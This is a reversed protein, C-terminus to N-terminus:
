ESNVKVKELYESPLMGFEKKFCKAFYKPTNFGVAMSLEGVAIQPNGRAIECAKKLRISNIFGTVNQGTLARLKNYLTSSSVCMDSALQERSYDADDLHQSVCDIAKTIFVEDPSSYHQQEVQFDTQSSFKRRVRERNRIINDIRLQLDSLRFPKTIYADAGSEYGLNQDEDTTKATLMVVPLQGYDPSDKIARTLEVGDMVPMMVDTIVVDLDRKYIVNLAQQGNRSTFVNYQQAFLKSMLELLEANDEVILMSYDKRDGEVMLEEGELMLEGGEVMQVDVAKNDATFDIEEKKYAERSIPLTVTFTTGTGETSRCDIVGHHLMVLDHTLSLGIGTGLTNMKRYDGDLFRTYLHKMKDRPIGIGEDSVTLVAVTPSAAPCGLSVTIRGGECNYKVANSLLNYLIKDVKDKDFWADVGDEPCTVSLEANKAGVMPRINECEQRVFAALDGRAVLLRLQGAQSKRVELIQRLLRTLRQINNQMLAYQGAFQPAKGRLEDISASIITLPTLLEHTINTFVVAMALRNKTKLYNKYWRIVGYAAILLLVIYILYAWWSLYWPPLVRLKIAYPMESLHGYSDTARLHLYYTGAPLNQYTAMRNDADAHQWTRDYGELWYAYKNQQQNQYTLLSFVVSLKRVDSPITIQRTFFPQRSSIESRMDPLLWNYPRDDILLESVILRAPASLKWQSARSPDFALFGGANGYFLESGFGYSGNASFHTAQLGDEVGYYTATHKDGETRLRVLGRDTSLWLWGQRDGNISYISSLNLHFLHNVPRFADEDADYLFLTGSGSVAWLRHGDDEHCALADDIPYNGHEPAYQRFVLSAPRGADGSVCIIGANETAIWVRRRSDEMLANVHCHSFDADGESMTLMRGKGDGFAVGVGDSQGIWLSGDRRPLFDNVSGYSIYPRSNGQLLRAPADERWAIIGGSCGLWLEGNGRHAVASVTQVQIGQRGTLQSFGPIRSNYSTLGTERDYFALGYPQLGLWFRRGDSTYVTQIRNVPLATDELDLHFFRFPAPRTSLHVIGEGRTVVWLNGKGDTLMDYCFNLIPYNEVDAENDLAVRTLGEICCGYVSHSASDEVLRHFTRFDARGTNFAHLGPSKEDEPHDLRLIGNEWTGIWLRGKSDFLLSAVTNRESMRPYAVMRGSRKDLRLLGGEWTGIYLNGKKDEAISRVGDPLNIDAFEDKDPDYRSVGANTGAWVTGDASTFLTIISRAQESRPEYTKFIGSIRDYGVVGDRTGIWLRDHHDETICNVYNNPLIGPSYGNSRYTKFRYGDFARLGQDTGVWMLGYRDFLLSRADETGQVVTKSMIRLPVRQAAATLWLALLIVPVTRRIM